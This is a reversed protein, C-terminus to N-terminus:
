RGLGARLQVDDVAVLGRWYTVVLRLACGYSPRSIFAAVTM